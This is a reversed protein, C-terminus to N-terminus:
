EFVCHVATHVATPTLPLAPSARPASAPNSRSMFARILGSSRPPTEPESPAKPTESKEDSKPTAMAKPKPKPEAANAVNEARWADSQRAEFAQRAMKIINAREERYEEEELIGGDRDRKLGLLTARHDDSLFEM